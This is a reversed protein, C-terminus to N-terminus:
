KFSRLAEEEKRRCVHNREEGCAQTQRLWHGCVRFTKIPIKWGKQGEGLAMGNGKSKIRTLPHKKDHPM